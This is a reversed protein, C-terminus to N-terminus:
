PDSLPVAVAFQGFDALPQQQLVPEEQKRHDQLVIELAAM